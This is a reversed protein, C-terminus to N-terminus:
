GFRWSIHLWSCSHVGYSRLAGFHSLSSPSHAPRRKQPPRSPCPRMGSGVSAPAQRAIAQQPGSPLDSQPLVLLEQLAPGSDAPQDRRFWANIGKLTLFILVVFYWSLVFPFGYIYLTSKFSTWWGSSWLISFLLLLTFITVESLTLHLYRSLGAVIRTHPNWFLVAHFWLFSALLFRTTMRIKAIVANM